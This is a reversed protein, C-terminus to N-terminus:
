APPGAATVQRHALEALRAQGDRGPHFWDWRSLQAATFPYSFVADGDYRCLPDRGCVERLAKNYAVVRARVAARRAVAAKDVAEPEALMSPCIGLKWVQQALPSARGTEWLRMLDPVSSVYVQTAPLVSRLREMGREFDARFEAVPTMASASARCADNAGTMVTVLEPRQQAAQGMQHPLDAMRAGTRAFNWSRGAAGAPGLLRSALSRVAPDGGTAWSAEPCDALVSCADFGRTISDGVAAISAPKPNWLPAPEAAQRQGSREARGAAAATDPEGQASCGALGAVLLVAAATARSGATRRRRNRMTSRM